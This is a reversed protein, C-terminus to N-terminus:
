HGSTCAQTPRECEAGLLGQDMKLKILARQWATTERVVEDRARLWEVRADNVQAFSVIGRDAQEQLDQVRGQWSRARERVLSVLAAQQALLHVDARVDSAIAKERQARYEDIEARRAEVEAAKGGAHQCHSLLQALMPCTPTKEAMGLLGNVSGLMQRVAPLTDANLGASVEQLMALEARHKLATAVAADCDFHGTIDPWPGSPRLRTDAPCPALDLLQRLEANLEDILIHLKTRDALVEFLQRHLAGADVQTQVGRRKLDKAKELAARIARVGDEAVETRAEAEALRVYLILAVGAASNRAEDSRARLINEKFAATQAGKHSLHQCGKKAQQEIEEREQDLLRAVGSGDAALCQCQGLPLDQYAREPEDGERAPGARTALDEFTPALLGRETCPLSPGGGCSRSPACGSSHDGLHGCGLLGALLVVAGLLRASPREM